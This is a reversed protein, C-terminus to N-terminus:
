IIRTRQWERRSLHCKVALFARALRYKPPFIVPFGAAMGLPQGCMPSARGNPSARIDAPPLNKVRLAAAASLGDFLSVPSWPGARLDQSLRDLGM